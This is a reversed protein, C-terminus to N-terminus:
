WTRSNAGPRWCVAFVPAPFRGSARAVNMADILFERDEIGIPVHTGFIFQAQALGQLDEVVGM